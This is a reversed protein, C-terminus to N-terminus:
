QMGIHARMAKEHLDLFVDSGVMDERLIGVERRVGVGPEPVGAAVDVHDGGPETKAGPMVGDLESAVVAIEELVEDGFADRNEADLGRFVYCSGRDSAANWSDRPEESAAGGLFKDRLTVRRIEDDAVVDQRLHGVEVVENAADRKEEFRAADDGDLKWVELSQDVLVLEVRDVM